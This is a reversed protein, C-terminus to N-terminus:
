EARGEKIADLGREARVEQKTKIGAEVLAVDIEAQTKDDPKTLDATVIRAVTGRPLMGSIATEFKRLYRPRLTGSLFRPDVNTANTYTISKGEVSALLHDASMGFLRAVETVGWKQAELWQADEPKLMIPQYSLGKGLVRVGYEGPGDRWAERYQKSEPGTLANETTLVGTPVDSQRFWNSAYDRTEIIGALTHRAHGIPGLSRAQGRMPLAQVHTIEYDTLGREDGGRLERIDYRKTGKEDFYPFVTLPSLLQAAIIQGKSDRTKRFFANGDTMLDIVYQEILDANDTWPDIRDALTGHTLTGHKDAVVPLGSCMGSSTVVASYVASLGLSRVPTVIPADSRRPPKVATPTEDTAELGLSQALFGM